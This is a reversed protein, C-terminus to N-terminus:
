GKAVSIEDAMSVVREALPAGLTPVLPAAGNESGAGVAGLERSLLPLSDPAELEDDRPAIVTPKVLMMSPVAEVVEVADKVSAVALGSLAETGSAEDWVTGCVPALLVKVVPVLAPVPEGPRRPPIVDASSPVVVPEVSPASVALPVSDGVEVPIRPVPPRGM